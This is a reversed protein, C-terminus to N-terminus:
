PNACPRCSNDIRKALHRTPQRARRFRLRIPAPVQVCVDKARVPSGERERGGERRSLGRPHAESLGDRPGAMWAGRVRPAGFREIFADSYMRPLVIEDQADVTEMRTGTM